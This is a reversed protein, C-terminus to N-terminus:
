WILKLMIPRKTKMFYDYKKNTEKAMEHSFFHLYGHKNTLHGQGFM